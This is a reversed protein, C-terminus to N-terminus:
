REKQPGRGREALAASHAPTGGCRGGLVALPSDALPDQHQNKRRDTEHGYSDCKGKTVPFLAIQLVASSAADPQVYQFNLWVLPVRPLHTAPLSSPLTGGRSGVM